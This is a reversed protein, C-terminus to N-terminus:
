PNTRDHNKRYQLPTEGYKKRFSTILNRDDPFGNDMAILGIPKETHLLEEKAKTLRYNMLYRKCTTGTYQKFYTSFYNPSFHFADAVSDRTLPKAYNTEIYRIMEKMTDVNKSNLSSDMSSRKVSRELCLHYLIELVLANRHLRDFENMQYDYRYPVLDKFLTSVQSSAMPQTNTFYIEEYEPFNIKLFEPSLILIVVAIESNDKSEVPQPVVSHIFGSNVALLVGPNTIYSKGDIYHKHHGNVTYVLELEDHWHSRLLGDRTNIGPTIIYVGGAKTQDFESAFDEKVTWIDM